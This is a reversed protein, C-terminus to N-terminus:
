LQRALFVTFYVKGGGHDSKRSVPLLKSGCKEYVRLAGWNLVHTMVLAYHFDLKKFENLLTKVLATGLGKNQLTKKVALEDIYVTKGSPFTHEFFSLLDKESDLNCGWTFGVVEGNSEAM